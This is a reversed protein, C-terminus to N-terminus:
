RAHRRVTRGLVARIGCPSLRTATVSRSEANDHPRDGGDRNPVSRGTVTPKNHGLREQSTTLGPQLGIQALHQGGSATAGFSPPINAAQTM